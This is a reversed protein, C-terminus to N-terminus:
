ASYIINKQKEEEGLEYRENGKGGIMSFAINDIWILRQINSFHIFTFFKSTLDKQQGERRNKNNREEYRCITFENPNVHIIGLFGKWRLIKGIGNYGLIYKTEKDITM